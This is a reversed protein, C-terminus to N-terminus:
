LATRSQNRMLDEAKRQSTKLDNRLRNSKSHLKAFIAPFDKDQFVADLIAELLVICLRRNLVQHQLLDFIMLLGTRTTESGIIRRLEDSLSSFLAM